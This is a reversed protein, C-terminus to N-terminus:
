EVLDPKMGLFSRFPIRIKLILLKPGFYGPIGSTKKFEYQKEVDKKPHKQRPFVKRWEHRHLLEYTYNKSVFHGFKLEIEVQIIM